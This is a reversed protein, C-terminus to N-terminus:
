AQKIAQIVRKSLSQYEKASANSIGSDKLHVAENRLRRLKQLIEITNEGLSKYESVHVLMNKIRFPKKPDVEIGNKKAFEHLSSEVNLWSEIVAGRPSLIALENFSENQTDDMPLDLARSATEKLEKGFDIETDKHKFKQVKSIIKGLDSKFTFIFVCTVLPWALSGALNSILTYSDM